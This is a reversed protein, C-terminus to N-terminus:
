GGGGRTWAPVRVGPSEPRLGIGVQALPFGGSSPIERDIGQHIIGQGIPHDIMEVALVIEPVADQAVGAGSKGLIWQPHQPSKLEGRAKRAGKRGLRGCEASRDDVLEPGKRHFPDPCLPVLPGHLRDLRREAEPDEPFGSPDGVERFDGGHVADRLIRLPVRFPVHEGVGGMAEVCQHGSRLPRPGRGLIPPNLGKGNQGVIESFGGGGDLALAVSLDAPDTGTVIGDPTREGELEKLPDTRGVGHGLGDRGQDLLVEEMQGPGAVSGARGADASQGPAQGRGGDLLKAADHFGVAPASRREIGASVSSRM